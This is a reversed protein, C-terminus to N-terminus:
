PVELVSLFFIQLNFFLVGYHPRCIRNEEGFIVPIIRHNGFKKWKGVGQCGIEM